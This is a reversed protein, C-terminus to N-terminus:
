AECKEYVLSLDIDYKAFLQFYNSAIFNYFNDCIKVDFADQKKEDSFTQYSGIEKSFNIIDCNYVPLNLCSPLGQLWGAFLSQYSGCRLLEYKCCYEHAFCNVLTQLKDKISECQPYDYGEFDISEVLYKFLKGKYGKIAALQEISLYTKKM